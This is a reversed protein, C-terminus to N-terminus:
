AIRNMGVSVNTLGSEGKHDCCESNSRKGIGNLKFETRFTSKEIYKIWSSM